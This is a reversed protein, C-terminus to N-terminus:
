SELNYQKLKKRLRKARLVEKAEILENKLTKKLQNIEQEIDIIDDEIYEIPRKRKNYYNQSSTTTSTTTTTRDNTLDISNEPPTTPKSM